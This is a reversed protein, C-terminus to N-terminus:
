IRVGVITMDDIQESNARWAEITEELKKGIEVMPLHNNEILFAVLRRVKYKEKDPNTQDKIGDSMFYLADGSKLQVDFNQFDEEHMYNGIPM